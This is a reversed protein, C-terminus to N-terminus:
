DLSFEGNQEIYKDFSDKVFSIEKKELAMGKKKLIKKGTLTKQDEKLFVRHLYTYQKPTFLYPNRRAM